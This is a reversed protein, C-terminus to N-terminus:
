CPGQREAMARFVARVNRMPTGPPLACTLMLGGRPLALTEVCRGIHADIERPGGQLGTVRPDIDLEICVRGRLEQRIM